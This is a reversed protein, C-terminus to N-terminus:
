GRRSMRRQGGGPAAPSRGGEIRGWTQLVDKCLVDRLSRWRRAVITAVAPAAAINAVASTAASGLWAAVPHATFYVTAESHPPPNTAFTSMELVPSATDPQFSAHDKPDSWFTDFPQFAENLWLPEVTVAVFALKLASMGLPPVTDMPKWPVTPPLLGTGDENETFPVVQPPPPPPPPLVVVLVDLLVEVVVRVEELVDVELLVVLVLLVVVVLEPPPPPLALPGTPNALRFPPVVPPLLEVHDGHGGGGREFVAIRAEVECVTLTEPMIEIEPMCWTADFLVTM